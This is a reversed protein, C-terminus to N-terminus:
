VSYSSSFDINVKKKEEEMLIQCFLQQDATEISIYIKKTKEFTFDLNFLFQDFRIVDLTNGEM